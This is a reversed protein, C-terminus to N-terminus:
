ISVPLFRCGTCKKKIKEIETITENHTKKECEKYYMEVCFADFNNKCLYENWLKSHIFATCFQWLRLYKKKVSSNYETSSGM